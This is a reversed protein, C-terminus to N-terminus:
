YPPNGMPPGAVMGPPGAAPPYGPPPGYGPMMGPPAPPASLANVAGCVKGLVMAWLIIGVLPLWSLLLGAILLGQGLPPAAIRHREVYKNYATAYGPWVVFIWYLSFFPVFLLGLAAGPSPKTVGDAIASWMKYVFVMQMISWVVIPLPVFPIAEKTKPDGALVSLLGTALMSIVFFTIYLGGSMKVVPARPPAPAPGM